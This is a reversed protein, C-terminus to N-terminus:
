GTKKATIQKFYDWKDLKAQSKPTKDLFDKAIGINQFM